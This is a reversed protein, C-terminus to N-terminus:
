TLMILKFRNLECEDAFLDDRIATAFLQEAEGMIALLGPLKATPLRTYIWMTIFPIMALVTGFVGAVTGWINWGLDSM